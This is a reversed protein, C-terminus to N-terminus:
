DMGFADGMISASHWWEYYKTELEQRAPFPYFLIEDKSGLFIGNEIVRYPFYKSHLRNVM